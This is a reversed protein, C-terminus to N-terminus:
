WTEWRKVIPALHILIFNSKLKLFSRTDFCILELSPNRLFPQLCGLLSLLDQVDKEVGGPMLVKGLDIGLLRLDIGFNAIGRNVSGQLEKSTKAQGGLTFKSISFSLIFRSRSPAVVIVQDTEPASLDDLELIFGEFRKLLANGLTVTKLNEVV